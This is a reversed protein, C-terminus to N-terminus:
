QEIYIYFVKGAPPSPLLFFWARNKGYACALASTQVTFGGSITLGAKVSGWSGWSGGSFNPRSSDKRPATGWSGWSAGVSKLSYQASFPM